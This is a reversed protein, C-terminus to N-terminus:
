INIVKKDDEKKEDKNRMISAMMKNNNRCDSCLNISIRCGEDGHDEIEKNEYLRQKCFQCLHFFYIFKGMLLLWDTKTDNQKKTTKPRIINDQSSEM